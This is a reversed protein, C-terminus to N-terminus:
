PDRPCSQASYGHGCHASTTCHPQLRQERMSCQTVICLLDLAHFGSHTVWIIQAFCYIWCKNHQSKCASMDVTQSSSISYSTGLSLKGLIHLLQPCLNRELFNRSLFQQLGCLLTLEYPTPLFLLTSTM